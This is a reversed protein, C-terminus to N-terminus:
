LRAANDQPEYGLERRANEIDWFRSDNDSVGYYIGYGVNAKLSKDVLQILDRHSLWTRVWRSDGTPDDDSLVTGIRLCVSQIGYQDYFQRATIEGFAKSTGYYGDPQVPDFVTIQRPNEEKHLRPPSGEYGGTVHNSSAFVVTKIESTRICEYINRTGKINNDMVSEWSAEVRSDGALHVIFRALSIQKFVAQLRDLETINTVYQTYGRALQPAKQDIGIVEYYDTLGKSLITGVLGRDGTIILKEKSM